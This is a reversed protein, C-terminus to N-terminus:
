GELLCPSMLLPVPDCNKSGHECIEIVYQYTMVLKQCSQCSLSFDTRYLWVAWPRSKLLLGGLYVIYIICLTFFLNWGHWFHYLFSNKTFKKYQSYLYASSIATYFGSQRFILTTSYPASSTTEPHHIITSGNYIILLITAERGQTLFCSLKHLEM